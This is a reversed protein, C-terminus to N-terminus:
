KKTYDPWLDSTPTFGDRTMRERVAQTIYAQMSQGAASAAARIDTGVPKLPMFEIRDCKAKYANNGRRHAESVPMKSVEKHTTDQNYVGSTRHALFIHPIYCGNNHTAGAVMKGPAALHNRGTGPAM